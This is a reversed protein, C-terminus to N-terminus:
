ERVIGKELLEQWVDCRFPVDGPAWTRWGTNCTPCCVMRWNAPADGLHPRIVPRHQEALKLLLPDVAPPDDVDHLRGSAELAFVAMRVVGFLDTARAVADETVWGMAVNFAIWVPCNNPNVGHCDCANAGAPTPKSVM